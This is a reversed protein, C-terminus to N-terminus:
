HCYYELNKFDFWWKKGKMHNVGLNLIHPEDINRTMATEQFSLSIVHSGSFDVGGLVLNKLMLYRAKIKEGRKGSTESTFIVQFHDPAKRVFDHDIISTEASTDLYCPIPTSGITADFKIHGKKGFTFKCPDGEPEEQYSSFHNEKLDILIKESKFFDLGLKSNKQNDTKNLTDFPFCEKHFPDISLNGKFPPTTNDDLKFDPRVKTKTSSTDLLFREKLGNITGHLFIRGGGLEKSVFDLNSSTNIITNM